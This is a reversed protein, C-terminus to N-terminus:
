SPRHRKARRFGLSVAEAITYTYCEGKLKIETRDYQQDFPLHYIKFGNNINCKIRPYNTFPVREIRVGLKKAFSLAKETIKTYTPIMLVPIIFKNSFKEESLQYEITTGYLQMIVNEHIEHESSWNKCQVILVESGFLGGVQKVAVLDRGLDNKRYKIGYMEVFYGEQRLHFACCMEYDRGIQWKSKNRNSVYRDLALQSREDESLRHYEEESLYDKRRDRLENIESYSYFEGIAILEEDNEVYEVLEPFASLLYEYKYRIENADQLAKRFIKRMGDVEKAASIAPHSKLKLRYVCQAFVLSEVNAHMTATDKFPTKSNILENLLNEKAKLNAIFEEQEKELRMKEKNWEKDLFAEQEKLYVLRSAHEKKLRQKEEQLEKSLLKEKKKLESAYNEYEKRLCEKERQLEKSKSLFDLHWKDLNSEFEYKLCVLFCLLQIISFAVLIVNTTNLSLQRALYISIHYVSIPLFIIIYWGFSYLFARGVMAM